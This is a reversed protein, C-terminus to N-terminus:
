QGVRRLLNEAEGLVMVAHLYRLGGRQGGGDEVDGSEVAVEVELGLTNRREQRRDEGRAYEEEKRTADM